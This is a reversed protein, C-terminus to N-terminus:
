AADEFCSESNPLIGRHMLFDVLFARGRQTWCTRVSVTKDGLLYTKTITYGSNAYPAYLVWTGGLRYQVGLDHLMKNFAIASMGYDKAILTVPIVSESQLVSDYFQAKPQLTSLRTLLKQTYASDERMRSLTDSSIYAGHQRIAPLVHTTIWKRFERATAKDSRLIVAYLGSENIITTPQMRGLSDILPILNREDEDLREAVKHPSKLGLVACVEKLVWWPVGEQQIVRVQGFEENEFIQIQNQM